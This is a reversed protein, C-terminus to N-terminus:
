KAMTSAIMPNGSCRSQISSLSYFRVFKRGCRLWVTFNIECFWHRVLLNPWHLRLIVFSIQWCDISNNDSHYVHCGGVVLCLPPFLRRRTRRMQPNEGAIFTMINVTQTYLSSLSFSHATWKCYNIMDRFLVCLNTVHRATTRTMIMMMLVWADRQRWRRRSVGPPFM